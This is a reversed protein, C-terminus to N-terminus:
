ASPMGNHEVGDLLSGARALTERVIGAIWVKGDDHLCDFECSAYISLVADSDAIAEAISLFRSLPIARIAHGTLIIDAM